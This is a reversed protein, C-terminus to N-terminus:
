KDPRSIQSPFQQKERISIAIEHAYEISSGSISWLDLTGIAINQLTDIDPVLHELM